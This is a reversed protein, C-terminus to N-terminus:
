KAFEKLYIQEDVGVYQTSDVDEFADRFQSPFVMPMAFPFFAPSNRLASAPLRGGRTAHLAAKWLMMAMMDNDVPVLDGRCYVGKEDTPGLFGFEILIAIAYRLNRELMGPTGYTEEIRRQIQAKAVKEQMSLLRGVVSSVAYFFPYSGALVAWHLAVWDRSDVKRALDVLQGVFVDLGDKPAFWAALLAINKSYQEAGREGHQTEDDALMMMLEKRISAEDTGAVVARLAQDMWRRKVTQRIGLKEFRDPSRM